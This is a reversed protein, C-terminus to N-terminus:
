VGWDIDCVNFGMTSVQPRAHTELHVLTFATKLQKSWDGMWCQCPYAFYINYIMARIDLIHKPSSGTDKTTFTNTLLGLRIGLSNNQSGELLLTSWLWPCNNRDFLSSERVWHSNQCSATIYASNTEVTQPRIRHLKSSSSSHADVHRPNGLCHM